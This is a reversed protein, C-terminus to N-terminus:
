NSKYSFRGSSWCQLISLFFLHSGNAKRIMSGTINYWDKLEAIHLKQQVEALCRRQNAPDTWYGQPAQAFNWIKWGREPFAEM